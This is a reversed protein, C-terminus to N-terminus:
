EDNREKSKFHAPSLGSIRKFFRSFNFESSFKLADAVTKVNQSPDNLMEAARAFLEKQLFVKPSIGFVETFSRTFHGESCHMTDAMSAVTITADPNHRIPMLVKEFKQAARLDIPLKEPWYPLVINMAFAECRALRRVPNPDSFINKFEETIKKDSFTVKHTTTAFVDVGPFLELNFHIVQHLNRETFRYRRPTNMLGFPTFYTTNEAWYWRDNSGVTGIWSPEKSNEEICVSIGNFPLKLVRDYETREDFVAVFRFKPQVGNLISHLFM